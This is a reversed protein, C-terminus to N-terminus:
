ADEKQKYHRCVDEPKRYRINEKGIADFLKVFEKECQEGRDIDWRQFWCVMCALQWMGALIVKALEFNSM